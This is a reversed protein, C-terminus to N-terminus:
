HRWIKPPGGAQILDLGQVFIWVEGWHSNLHFVVMSGMYQHVVGPKSNVIMGDRVEGILDHLKATRQGLQEPEDSM